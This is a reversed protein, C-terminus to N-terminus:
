YIAHVSREAGDTSRIVMRKGDPAVRQGDLPQLTRRDARALECMGEGSMRPVTIHIIFILANTNIGGIQHPSYSCHIYVIDNCAM